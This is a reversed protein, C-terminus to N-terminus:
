RQKNFRRMAYFVISHSNMPIKSGRTKKSEGHRLTSPYWSIQSNTPQSFGGKGFFHEMSRLQIM